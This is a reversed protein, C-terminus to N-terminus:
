RAAFTAKNMNGFYRVGKYLVNVVVKLYALRYSHFNKLNVLLAFNVQGDFTDLFFRWLFHFFLLSRCRNGLWLRVHSLNSFNCRGGRIQSKFLLQLLKHLSRITLICIFTPIRFPFLVCPTFLKLILCAYQTLPM